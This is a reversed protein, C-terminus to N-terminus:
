GPVPAATPADATAGAARLDPDSLRLGRTLIEETVSALTADTLMTAVRGRAAAWETHLPCPARHGCGPLGLACETFLDNGDIARVVEILRIEAAPRALAVGGQPGRITRLLGAQKLTQAIKALFTFSIGLRESIDKVPTFGDTPQAAVYLAARIGYECAKSFLM